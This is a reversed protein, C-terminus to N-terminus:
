ADRLAHLCGRERRFTVLATCSAFGGLLGLGAYLVPNPGRGRSVVGDDFSYARQSFAEESLVREARDKMTALDVRAAEETAARLELTTAKSLRDFTVTVPYGLDDNEVSAEMANAFAAPADDLRVVITGIYPRPYLAALGAMGVVFAVTVLRCARSSLMSAILEGFTISTFAGGVADAEATTRGCESVAGPRFHKPTYCSMHM